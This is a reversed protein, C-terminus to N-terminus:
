LRVRHSIELTDAGPLGFRDVTRVSNRAMFSFIALLVSQPDIGFPRPMVRESGVVYVIEGSLKLTQEMVPRLAAPVDTVELYGFLIEARWIERDVTSIVVREAPEIRPRSAIRVSAIVLPQRVVDLLHTLRTMVVPAAVPVRALFVIAKTGMGAPRDIFHGLTKGLTEAAAIQVGAVKTYGFRWSGVILMVTCAVALPM